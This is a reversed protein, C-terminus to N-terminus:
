FAKDHFFQVRFLVKCCFFKLRLFRSKVGRFYWITLKGLFYMCYADRDYSCPFFGKTIDPGPFVCHLDLIKKLKRNHTKFVISKILIFVSEKQPTDKQPCKIIGCKINNINCHRRHRPAQPINIQVFKHIQWFFFSYYYIYFIGVFFFIHLLNELSKLPSCDGAGRDIVSPLSRETTTLYSRNRVDFSIQGEAGYAYKLFMCKRKSFFHVRFRQKKQSTELVM